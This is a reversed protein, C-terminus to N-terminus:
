KYMRKFLESLNRVDLLYTPSCRGGFRLHAAPHTIHIGDKFERRYAQEAIRGVFVVFEPKVISAVHLVNLMCALIEERRPERNKGQDPDNEEWIWPRCMVTNTIYYSPIPTEAEQASEEILTNLLQGSAGVFAEALLDETKGPGEGIFLLKAPITGRGIVQNRAYAKLACGKCRQLKHFYNKHKIM